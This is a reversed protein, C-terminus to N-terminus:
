QLQLHVSLDGIQSWLIKGTALFECIIYENAKPAFPPKEARAGYLPTPGM